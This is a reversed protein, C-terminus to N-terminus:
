WGLIYKAKELLITGGILLLFLKWRVVSKLMQKNYRFHYCLDIIISKMGLLVIAIILFYMIARVM